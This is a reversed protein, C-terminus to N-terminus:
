LYVICRAQPTSEKSEEQPPLLVDLLLIKDKDKSEEYANEATEGRKDKFEKDVEDRIEKRRVDVRLGTIDKIYKKRSDTDNDGAQEHAIDDAVIDAM